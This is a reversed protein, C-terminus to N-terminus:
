FTSTIAMSVSRGPGGTVRPAFAPNNLYTQAAPPLYFVDFLNGIQVGVEAFGLDYFAGVDVVTYGEIAFPDTGDNFARNRDGVLLLQGYFNLESTAQYDANFTMKWPSVDLTSLATSGGPGDGDADFDGENWSLAWELDLASVPNAGFVFELGYNEQPARNFRGEGTAPDVTFNSGLESDAYFAAFSYRLVGRNGRLGFEFSDVIQPDAVVSSTLPADSPVAFAINRLSVIEFGQSFNGYLTVWDAADYSLGVNYATGSNDGSGGQRSIQNGDADTFFEFIRTGGGIEFSVDEYRLGASLRLEPTIEWDAQAFLGLTELEIPFLFRGERAISTLDGTQDFDDALEFVVAESRREQEEYDAGILVRLGDVVERSYQSRLGFGEDTAFSQYNRPFVEPLPINRLDIFNSIVLEDRGYYQLALEGGFLDQNTYRLNWFEKEDVPDSGPAFTFSPVTGSEEGTAIGDPRIVTAFNRGDLNRDIRNYFGELRQTDTIDVGVKAFYNYDNSFGYFVPNALNGNGDFVGEQQDYSFSVLYDIAGLDGSAALTGKFSFAEDGFVSDAGTFTTGQVRARVELPDGEVPERTFFQIIGGTAGAGYAASPGYLVEIRGIVEPDFKVLPSFSAGGGSNFGLPVGDILFQPERGRLNQARQIDIANPPGFGPVTNGLLDGINSTRVLNEAIEEPQVVEVTRAIKTIDQETRGATVIIQPEGTDDDGTDAEAVSQAFAVSPALLALACSCSALASKFALNRPM